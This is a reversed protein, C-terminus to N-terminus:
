REVCKISWEPHSDLICEIKEEHLENCWFMVYGLEDVIATKYM